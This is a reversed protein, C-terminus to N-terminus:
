QWAERWGWGNEMQNILGEISWRRAYDECVGDARQAINTSILLLPKSLKGEEDEFQM